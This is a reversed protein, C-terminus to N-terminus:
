TREADKRIGRHEGEPAPPMGAVGGAVAKLRVMGRSPADWYEVEEVRVRLLALDPDELGGPFWIRYAPDWLERCKSPNVVLSASGSVSVYQHREGNSYSLNVRPDVALQETKISRRSTFFWLEGDFPFQQTAMPRSRITGKGDVTTLMAVRIGQVREALDAVWSEQPITSTEAM